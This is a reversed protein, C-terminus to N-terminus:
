KIYFYRKGFKWHTNWYSKSWINYTIRIKGETSSADLMAGDGLYIGVHGEFCLIDGPQLNEKSITPYSTAAWMGSTHYGFSYGLDYRLVYYIFGSCDFTDPGKGGWVYPAGLHTKAAEIFAQAKASDIPYAESNDTEPKSEPTPSPKASPTNTPASTGGASPSKAPIANESYIAERTMEGVQGDVTLNNNKQFARVAKDTDTGFYGTVSSLYGLEKLRNQLETVDTGSMGIAVKYKKADSSFLLTATDKSCVGNATLNHRYQFLQIAYATQTGYYRTPEDNSLYDLDMLRQQLEIVADSTTGPRLKAFDDITFGDKQPETPTPSKSPEDKDPKDEDPEDDANDKDESDQTPTPEPTPEVYEVFSFNEPMLSIGTEDFVTGMEALEKDTLGEAIDYSLASIVDDHSKDPTKAPASLDEMDKISTTNTLALTGIIAAFCFAAALIVAIIKSRRESSRNNNM